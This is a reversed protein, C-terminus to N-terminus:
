TGLQFRNTTLPVTGHSFTTLLLPFNRTQLFVDSQWKIEGPTVMRRMGVSGNRAGEVTLFDDALFYTCKLKKYCILWLQACAVVRAVIQCQYSCDINVNKHYQLHTVSAQM